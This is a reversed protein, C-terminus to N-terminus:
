DRHLEDSVKKGFAGLQGNAYARIVEPMLSALAQRVYPEQWGEQRLQEELAAAAKVAAETATRNLTEVTKEDGSM